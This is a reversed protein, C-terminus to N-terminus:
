KASRIRGALSLALILTGAVILSWGAGAVVWVGVVLGAFGILEALDCLVNPTLRAM